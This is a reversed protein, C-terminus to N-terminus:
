FHQKHLSCVRSGIITHCVMLTDTQLLCSIPAVVDKDRISYFGIGIDDDAIVRDSDSIGALPKAPM